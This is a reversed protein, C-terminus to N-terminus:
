STGGHSLADPGRRKGYRVRPDAVAYFVDALLSGVVTAIAAVFTTGLLLPVDTNIAAQYTLLGMGPYNFVTETIIAGGVIVPLSLGLLTIIPILANRLAHRYLVRRNGAGKARATRIYDQTMAEMMSSRMYRTFSAITIASLTIVPLVLDQWESDRIGKISDAQPAEPSFWDSDIAFFLILMQGLLFAPM